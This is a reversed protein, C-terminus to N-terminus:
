GDTRGEVEPRELPTEASVTTCGGGSPRTSLRPSVARSACNTPPAGTGVYLVTAAVAAMSASPTGGFPIVVLLWVLAGWIPWRQWLRLLRREVDTIGPPFVVLRYSRFGQRSAVFDISGWPRQGDLVRAWWRAVPRQPAPDRGLDLRAIPCDKEETV